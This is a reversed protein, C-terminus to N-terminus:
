QKTLPMKSFVHWILKGRYTSITGLFHAQSLFQETLPQGTGRISLSVEQFLPSDDIRVLFYLTPLDYQEILSLFKAKQPVKITQEDTISLPFKWIEFMEKENM